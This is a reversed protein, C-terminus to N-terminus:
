EAMEKIKLHEKLGRWVEPRTKIFKPVPLGQWPALPLLETTKIKPGVYTTARWLLWTLTAPPGGCVSIVILINRDIPM